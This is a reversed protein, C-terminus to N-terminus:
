SAASDVCGHRKALTPPRFRSLALWGRRHTPWGTYVFVPAILALQVWKDVLADPVWMADFLEM